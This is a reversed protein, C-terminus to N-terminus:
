GEAVVPSRRQRHSRVQGGGRVRSKGACIQPSAWRHLKPTKPEGSRWRKKSTLSKSSVAGPGHLTSTFRRAALRSLRGALRVLQTEPFCRAFSCRADPPASRDSLRHAVTRATTPAGPRTGGWRSMSSNSGAIESSLEFEVRVGPSGRRRSPSRWHVRAWSCRAARRSARRRNDRRSM